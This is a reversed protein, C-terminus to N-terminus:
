MAVKAFREQDVIMFKGKPRIKSSRKSRRTHQNQDDACLLLTFSHTNLISIFLRYVNHEVMAHCDQQEQNSAQNMESFAAGLRTWFKARPEASLHKASIDPPRGNSIQFDLTM